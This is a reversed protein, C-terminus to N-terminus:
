ETRDGKDRSVLNTTNAGECARIGVVVM